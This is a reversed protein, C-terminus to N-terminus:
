KQGIKEITAKLNADKSKRARQIVPQVRPDDPWKEALTALAALLLPTTEALKPAGLLTRGVVVVKLLTDIALSNHVQGLIRVLQLRIDTALNKESLRTAIMPVAAEPASQLAATVGIRLVRDDADKLAAVTARDRESPVRLWLPFAERRVRADPHRALEAPAFAQPAHQLENLMALMNRTVYWRADVIREILHPAIMPGLGVLRRFVGMRIARSESEVLTELLIAVAVTDDFQDLLSGLVTFDVPENSLLRRINQETALRAWLEGVVLNEEPAAKLTAILMALEDGRELTAVARWFPVGVAEVEIAMQVMRMPELSYTASSKREGVSAAAMTQLAQTYGDPNPDVLSWGQILDRVQERLATDAQAQLAQSGTEAFASLKSLMRIMSDSITQGSTDAAARVIEVVADVALSDTADLVFQKQQAMDGGMKVLRQLTQPDLKGILTSMRRRVTASSNGGDNKLEQAIQLLYGVVVQDYAQAESHQNIADAVADADTAVPGGREDTTLAARALGIWLQASRTGQERQDDDQEDDDAPDGVLELQDYTLAYLRVNDWQRLVEADGLGLPREDRDSAVAVLTMMQVIEHASVGRQFVLAGIHQKHFKSALSRLVPHRSDTAVGEIVLQHRAVGISVSAREGLLATLRQMVGGASRDQSPHGPPYMSTRHLAISFEVLFEILEASLATRESTGATKNM